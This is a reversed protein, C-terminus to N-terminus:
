FNYYKVDQPLFSLITPVASTKYMALGPEIKPIGYLGLTGGPTVRSM